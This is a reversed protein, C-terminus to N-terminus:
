KQLCYLKAERSLGLILGIPFTIVLLVSRAWNKKKKLQLFILWFFVAYSIAYLFGPINNFALCLIAAIANLVSIIVVYQKISKPLKQEFYSKEVTSSIFDYGCDCRQTSEPNILGCRPCEM